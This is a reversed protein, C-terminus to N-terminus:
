SSIARQWADWPVERGVFAVAQFSWVEPLWTRLFAYLAPELRQRDSTRVWFDVRCDYARAKSHRLYVCGLCRTEDPSLVTYTAETRAQFGAFHKELDRLNEELGGVDGPWATGPGFIGRLEPISTSWADFDIACHEPALPVLVFDKTAIRLPLSFDAPLFQNETMTAINSHHGPSSEFWCATLREGRFRTHRGIGGGPCRSLLPKTNAFRTPKQLRAEFFGRFSQRKKSPHRSSLRYAGGNRNKDM